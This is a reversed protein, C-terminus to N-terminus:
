KVEKYSDRWILWIYNIEYRYEEEEGAENEIVRQNEHVHIGEVNLMQQASNYWSGCSSCEVTYLDVSGEEMAELSFYHKGKSDSDSFIWAGKLQKGSGNLDHIDKQTCDTHKLGFKLQREVLNKPLTRIKQGRDAGAYGYIEVWGTEKGIEWTTGNIEVKRGSKM